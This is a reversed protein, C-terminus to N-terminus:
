RVDQVEESRCQAYTSWGSCMAYPSRIFIAEIRTIQGGDVKFLEGLQWTWNISRHDFFAFAFVVGREEDVAVVRRDRVGTVTGILSTQFQGKCTQISGFAPRDPLAAREADSAAAIMGNELRLCDDSFPYYDNGTNREVAEFYANAVEVLEARTHRGSEPVVSLYGPWPSGLAAVAAGTAPFPNNSPGSAAGLARDPRAAVQEVESIRGDRGVRLRLSVGVAEPARQPGAASSNAQEEVTVLAAVQGTTVDPVILRYGSPSVTTAWLGENGLPMEVGNETFRVTRAFLDDSVVGDSMAQLYSEVKGELCARDCTNPEMELPVGAVVHAVQASAPVTGFVLGSLLSAALMAARVSVIM